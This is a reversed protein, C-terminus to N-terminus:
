IRQGNAKAQDSPTAAKWNSLGSAERTSKKVEKKEEEQPALDSSSSSGHSGPQSRAAGLVIGSRQRDSDNGIGMSEMEARLEANAVDAKLGAQLEQEGIQLKLAEVRAGSVRITTEHDAKDRQLVKSETQLDELKELAEAEENLSLDPNSLVQSWKEFAAKNNRIQQDLKAIDERAPAIELKQILAVEFAPHEWEVSSGDVAKDALKKALAKLNDTYDVGRYNTDNQESILKDFTEPAIRAQNAPVLGSLAVEAFAAQRLDQHTNARSLAGAAHGQAMSKDYAAHNTQAELQKVEPNRQWGATRKENALAERLSTAKQNEQAAQKSKEARYANWQDEKEAHLNSAGAAQMMRETADRIQSATPTINLSKATQELLGNMQWPEIKAAGPDNRLFKSVENTSTKLWDKFEQETAM